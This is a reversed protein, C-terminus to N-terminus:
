LTSKLSLGTLACRALWMVHAVELGPRRALWLVRCPYHAVSRPSPSWPLSMPCPSSVHSLYYLTDM